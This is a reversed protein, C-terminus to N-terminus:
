VLKREMRAELIGRDFNTCPSISISYANELTMNVESFASSVSSTMGGSVALFGNLHQLTDDSPKIDISSGRHPMKQDFFDGMESERTAADVLLMLGVASDSIRTKGSAFASGNFKIDPAATHGLFQNQFPIGDPSLPQCMGNPSNHSSM